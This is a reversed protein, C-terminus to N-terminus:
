RWRDARAHPPWRSRDRRRHGPSTGSVTRVSMSDRSSSPLSLTVVRQCSASSPFRPMSASRTKGPASSNCAHDAPSRASSPRRPAPTGQFRHPWRVEGRYIGCRGRSSCGRARRRRGQVIRFAAVIAASSLPVRATSHNSSPVSSAVMSLPGHLGQLVDAALSDAVVWRRPPGVEGCVAPGGKGLSDRGRIRLRTGRDNRHVERSLGDRVIWIGCSGEGKEDRKYWRDNYIRYDGPPRTTDIHAHERSVTRNIETEETFALDNRRSLGENRYVNVTRGINIRTKDLPLDERNAKGEVVTLKATRRSAVESARKQTETEIWLWIGEPGPLDNSVSVDM